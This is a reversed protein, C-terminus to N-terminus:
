NESKARFSITIGVQQTNQLSIVIHNAAQNSTQDSDSFLHSLPHQSTKLHTKSTNKPLTKQSLNKIKNPVSPQGPIYRDEKFKSLTQAIEDHM